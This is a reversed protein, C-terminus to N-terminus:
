LSWLGIADQIRTVTVTISAASFYRFQEPLVAASTTGLVVTFDSIQDQLATVDGKLQEQLYRMRFTRTLGQAAAATGKGYLGLLSSRIQAEVDAPDHVAAVMATVTVPVEIEVPTLFVVAYSSDAKAVVQRVLAQTTATVASPVDISVFLKNINNVSAGRVLEEAQENWVSLFQIGAVQRRLLFDFNSLYVANSDHLSPYRALVRLVDNDPPEFGDALTQSLTLTVDSEAALAIYEFAFNAGAELGIPGDCERVTITLVDGNAPQHGVVAGGADAAGFRVTLRRYEDTEVHFVRDGANVNCFEATYTFAATTDEVDIGTTFAGDPSEDVTISYFATTGAVTHTITRTTQQVATITASGGAPLVASGEVSYRRGKGDLLGRGAVITLPAAGPNAALVSVKAPRGLPLVGKLSADAYVTGMRAKLFPEVEAVDVQQSLMALMTAMADMQALIRPDGAKYATAAAPRSSVAAVLAAMFDSKLYM